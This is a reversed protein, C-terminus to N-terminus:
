NIEFCECVMGTVIPSTTSSTLIDTPM